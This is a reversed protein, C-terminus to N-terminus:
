KSPVGIFGHPAGGAVLIYQGVIVGDPNIGFVTTAFPTVPNHLADLYSVDLTVPNSGDGPQLFGHRKGTVEGTARYAGVFAGSPNMDWIVTLNVVAGDIRPVYRTITGNEVTYGRQVGDMDMVFGVVTQAGLTAGNNMSAPTGMPDAVEGGNDALSFAPEIDVFGKAGRSRHWAAGFMSTMLDHDHLCGYIDGDATIRQPIAGPHGPFMITAYSGNRYLFGKICAPDPGNKLDKPCYLPSDDPLDANVPLVYQGVIEGQPNIGNATTGREGPVPFDLATVTGDHRVFGHQVNGTDVYFGVVDGRANIGRASTQKAASGPALGEPCATAAAECLVDIPTYTYQQAFAPAGTLLMASVSVVLATRRM